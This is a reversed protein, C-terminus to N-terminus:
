AQRSPGRKTWAAASLRSAAPRTVHTSLTLAAVTTAVNAQQHSMLIKPKARNLTNPNTQGHCCCDLRDCRGKVNIRCPSTKQDASKRRMDHWGWLREQLAHLDDTKSVAVGLRDRSRHDSQAQSPKATTNWAMAM